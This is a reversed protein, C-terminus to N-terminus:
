LVVNQIPTPVYEVTAEATFQALQLRERIEDFRRQQVLSHM